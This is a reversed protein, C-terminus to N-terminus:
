KPGFHGGSRNGLVKFVCAPGLLIYINRLYDIGGLASQSKFITSHFFRHIIKRRVSIM